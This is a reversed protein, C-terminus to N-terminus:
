IGSGDIHIGCEKEGCEWPFKGARKQRTPFIPIHCPECGIVKYVEGYPSKFDYLKNYPLNNDKIYKEVQCELWDFLPNIKIITRDKRRIVEVKKAKEKRSESQDARVGSIWVDLTELARKNPNVKRVQCCASRGFKSYHPHSGMDSSLEELEKPDPCFREIRINYKKEVEDLVDYTEKFHKLTDIFFVRFDNTIKSALDITVIGTNQLSTGIAARKGFNIFAWELLKEAPLEELLSYPDEEILNKVSEEM